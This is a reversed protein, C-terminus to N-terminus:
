MATRRRSRRFGHAGDRASLGGACRSPSLPFRVEGSVISPVRAEDRIYEQMGGPGPWYHLKMQTPAATRM